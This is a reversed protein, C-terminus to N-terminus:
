AEPSTISPAAAPRASRLYEAGLRLVQGASSIAEDVTAQDLSDDAEYEVAHRVDRMSNMEDLANRLAPDSVLSRATDFTVYHHGERGRSRLGAERLIASAALRAADYARLLRNDPSASANHADRCAVLAKEWFGIIESDPAPINELRRADLHNRVTSNM